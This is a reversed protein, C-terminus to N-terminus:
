AEKSRSMEYWDAALMSYVAIDVFGAESRWGDRRIGEYSFGLREAVGKSKLNGPEAELGVRNLKLEEFVFRLVPRIARTMLGRGNAWEALWYGIKTAQIMEELPFFLIGGAMRGDQWIGIWPLGDDAYRDIGRNIFREADEVTHIRRAWGLWEGFFARNEEVITLFEAAHRRELMRLEAGNGLDYSFM